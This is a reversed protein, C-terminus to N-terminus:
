PADPHGGPDGVRRRHHQAPTKGFHRVPGHRFLFHFGLQGPEPLRHRRHHLTEVPQPLPHQLARTIFLALDELGLDEHHLVGIEQGPHLVEDPVVVQAGLGGIFELRQLEPGREAAGPGPHPLPEGIQEGDLDPHEPKQHALAVLLDEPELVVTVHDHDGVLEVGPEGHLEVPVLEQSEEGFFAGPGGMGRDQGVREADGAHHSGGARHFLDLGPGHHQEIAGAAPNQDLRGHRLQLAGLDGRCPPVLELHLQFGLRELRGGRGVALDQRQHPVDVQGILDLGRYTVAGLAYPEEAGLKEDRSPGMQRGFLLLVLVEAPDAGREPGMRDDDPGVIKPAVLEGGREGRRGLGIREQAPARDPHAEILGLDEPGLEPGQEPRGGIVRHLDHQRQDGPHVLHHPGALHQGLLRFIQRPRSDARRGRNRDAHHDLGGGRDDDGVPQRQHAGEEADAGVVEGLVGQRHIAAVGM